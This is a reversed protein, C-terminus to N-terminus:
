EEFASKPIGDHMCIKYGLIRNLSVLHDLFFPSEIVCAAVQRTKKHKGLFVKSCTGKGLVAGSIYDDLIIGGGRCRPVVFLERVVFMRNFHVM